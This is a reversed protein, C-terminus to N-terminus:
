WTLKTLGLGLWFQALHIQLMTEAQPGHASTIECACPNTLWQSDLSWPTTMPQRDHDVFAYSQYKMRWSIVAWASIERKCSVGIHFNVM